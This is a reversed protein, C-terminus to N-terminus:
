KVVVDLVVIAKLDKITLTVPVHQLGKPMDPTVAFSITINPMEWFTGHQSVTNGQYFITGDNTWTGNQLKHLTCAGIGNKGTGVIIYLQGGAEFWYPDRFDDSLGAPRGDIVVAKNGWNDLAEDTAMAQVIRAKANDVATYLIYPTGGDTYVCGSWCGKLDFDEGPYIAISEDRWDYLNESSIHGWHLRSMYPGNANKQFFLHYRGGSYLMGHTENTWSGSPM